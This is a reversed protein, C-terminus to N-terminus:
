LARLVGTTLALQLDALLGEVDDAAQRAFKTWSAFTEAEATEPTYAIAAEPKLAGEFVASANTVSGTRRLYDLTRSEFPRSAFLDLLTTPAQPTPVIGDFAPGRGSNSPLNVPVAQIAQGFLALTDDISMIPGVSVNGRLDASSGAIERLIGQADHNNRLPAGFQGVVGATHSLAANEIGM